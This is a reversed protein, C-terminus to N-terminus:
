ILPSGEMPLKGVNCQIVFLLLTLAVQLAAEQLLLGPDKDHNPILVSFLQSSCYDTMLDSVFVFLVECTLIEVVYPDVIIFVWTAIAFYSSKICSYRRATAAFSM